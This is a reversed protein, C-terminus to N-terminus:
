KGRVLHDIEYIGDPIDVYYEVPAIPMGTVTARDQKYALAVAINGGGGGKVWGPAGDVKHWMTGPIAYNNLGEGRWDYKNKWYGNYNEQDLYMVIKGYLYYKDKPTAEVVWVKRPVLATQVPAWAVLNKPDEKWGPAAAWIVRLQPSIVQWAPQKLTVLSSIKTGPELKRINSGDSDLGPGDFHALVTTEGVLKFNFDEPKGDFYPGDDESIDSGLLGDARNNPNVARVRRLAPVYSWDSDKHDGDRYRWNLSVIGNLDAPENVLGLTRSLLNLSNEGIREQIEPPAGDYYKFHVDVAIHREVGDSRGVWNVPSNTHFGGEWYVRYFYNWMVKSGAKPDAPDIKFPMGSLVPPRTGTAKDVLTGDENVDYKGYNQQSIETFRPNDFRARATDSKRIVNEYDGRCYFALIEDPMAGKAIQCNDKGLITGSPIENVDGLAGSTWSLTLVFSTM